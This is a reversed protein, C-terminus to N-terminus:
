HCGATHPAFAVHRARVTVCPQHPTRSQKEKEKEKRENAADINLTEPNQETSNSTLYSGLSVGYQGIFIENTGFRTCYNYVQFKTKDIM